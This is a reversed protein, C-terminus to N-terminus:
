SLRKIAEILLHYAIAMSTPARIEDPHTGALMQKLEELEFWRADELEAPDIVIDDNLAEGILGIMLTSPFPWPQSLLYDIKGVRINSEELVERRCADEMTEGPEMFGALASYVGEPFNAGRGLLCRGNRIIVMIVVPDTRPFHDGGCSACHRRYGADSMDTPDGCVACFKHRAHWHLLSRAQALTGLENPPLAGQMALSRLDIQKVTDSMLAAANDEAMEVAFLTEGDEAGLLVPKCVVPLDSIQQATFRAIRLGPDAVDILPRDGGFCVFRTASDELRQRVWDPDARQVALRDLTGYAFGLTDGDAM